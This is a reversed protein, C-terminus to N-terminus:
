AARDWRAFYEEWIDSEPIEGLFEDVMTAFEPDLGRKAHNWWKRHRPPGLTVRIIERYSLWTAEDLIGDKYQFWEHERNRM